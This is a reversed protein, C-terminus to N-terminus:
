KTLEGYLLLANLDKIKVNVIKGRRDKISKILAPIQNDLLVHQFDRERKELVLASFTRGIHKRLFLEYKKKSLESLAKARKEKQAPSPEHMRKRMFYAATKERPSFRFVHFKSIPSDKLFQYTDEFDKDSEELFGVIIDTGIFAFQNIKKLMQLKEVFEERTYGRKMHTLIKNSGSQLPIHFFNVLRKQPLIKEYFAFFEDNISWPHISGFSIRPVTTKNIISNILQIFSEGTDRGYAETNIATLIVEKITDGYNKIRSEINQM